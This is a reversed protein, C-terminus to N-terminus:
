FVRFSGCARLSVNGEMAEFLIVQIGDLPRGSMEECNQIGTNGFSNPTKSSLMGSGENLFGRWEWWAM